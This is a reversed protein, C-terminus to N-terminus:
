KKRGSNTDNCELSCITASSHVTRDVRTFLGKWELSRNLYRYFFMLIDVGYVKM